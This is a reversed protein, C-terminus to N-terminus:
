FDDSFWRRLGGGSALPHGQAPPQYDGRARVSVENGVHVMAFNKVVSGVPIWPGLAFRERYMAEVDQEGIKGRERAIDDAEPAIADGSVKDSGRPNLTPREIQEPDRDGRLLCGDGYAAPDVAQRWILAFNPSPRSRGFRFRGLAHMPGM